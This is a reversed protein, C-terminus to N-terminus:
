PERRLLFEGCGIPLHTRVSAQSFALKPATDALAQRSASGSITAHTPPSANEQVMNSHTYALHWCLRSNPLCPSLFMKLTHEELVLLLIKKTVELATTNGIYAINGAGLVATTDPLPCQLVDKSGLLIDPVADLADVLM